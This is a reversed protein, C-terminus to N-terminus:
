EKAGGYFIHGAFQHNSDHYHNYGGLLHASHKWSPGGMSLAEALQKACSKRTHVSGGSRLHSLAEKKTMTHGFRVGTGVLTVEYYRDM